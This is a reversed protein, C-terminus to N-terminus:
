RQPAAPRDIEAMWDAASHEVEIPPMVPAAPQIEPVATGQLLQFGLKRATRVSRESGCHIMVLEGPGSWKAVMAHMTDRSQSSLRAMTDDWLIKVYDTAPLQGAVRGWDPWEVNDIAVGFGLAALRAHAAHFTQPQRLFDTLPLEFIVQRRREPGIAKALPDFQAALINASHFNLSVRTGEFEPRALHHLLKFDLMETMLLFKRPDQHIPVGLSRELLDLGVWIEEFEMNCFKGPGFRIVHQHHLYVTLDLKGLSDMLHVFASGPVGASGAPVTHGAMGSATGCLRNCVHRFLNLETQLDFIRWSPTAHPLANLRREMTRLLRRVAPVAEKEFLLVLANPTLNFRRLPLGRLQTSFLREVIDCVLPDSIDALGAFDIVACCRETM